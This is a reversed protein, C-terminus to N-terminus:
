PVYNQYEPLFIKHTKALVTFPKLTRFSTTLLLIHKKEKCYDDRLQLAGQRVNNRLKVLELTFLEVSELFDLVFLLDDFFLCFSYTKTKTINVYIVTNDSTINNSIASCLDSTKNM